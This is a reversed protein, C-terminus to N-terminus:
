VSLLHFLKAWEARRFLRGADAHDSPEGRAGFCDSPCTESRGRPSQPSHASSAFQGSSLARVLVRGASLRLLGVWCTLADKLLGWAMAQNLRLILHLVHPVVVRDIDPTLTPMASTKPLGEM